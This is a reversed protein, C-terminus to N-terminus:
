AAFGHEQLYAQETATTRRGLAENRYPFRGFKRIVDRHEKAFPLNQEGNKPMRTMILRVCRDQDTICESHMLPLYFFQRQPEDVKLDHGDCIAKKAVALAKKDTSFATDAGRFMNRPFQDFLILLALSQDPRLMWQDLKGESAAKWTEMFRSQIKEDLEDSQIYWGAPGVEDLWFSLVDEPKAWM